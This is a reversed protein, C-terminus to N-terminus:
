VFRNKAVIYFKLIVNKVIVDRFFNLLDKFKNADCMAFVKLNGHFPFSRSFILTGKFYHWPM